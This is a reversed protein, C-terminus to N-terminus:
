KSIHTTLTGYDSAKNATDKMGRELEDNRANKSAQDEDNWDKRIRMVVGKDGRGLSYSTASGLSSADDVRRDGERQVKDKPVIEYGRELLDDVRGINGDNVVRYVYGDEQNAIKFRNRTGVPQRRPRASASQTNAPRSM